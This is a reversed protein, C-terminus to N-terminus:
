GEQLKNFKKSVSKLMIDEFTDLTQAEELINKTSYEKKLM